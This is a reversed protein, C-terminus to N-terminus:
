YQGARDRSLAGGSLGTQGGFTAEESKIIKQRRKRAEPAGSIGFVETEAVEQTYPDQQYIASLQRGRELGGAVTQFGAQAKEGTVGFAGLQEARERKIGLGSQAAGAGIEAATVKRKIDNLANEPDLIYALADGNSIVGSYFDSLLRMVEPPANFLREQATQVRDELEISSVDSAILNEFAPQVGLKDKSYYKAPLGYRRMINQYQDELSLYEAENLATLGKSIRKANAAFRKQYAESNRLRLTFESSSVSPDTILGRLPEVLSGLGYQSFEQFLLDFASQRNGRNGSLYDQYERYSKEDYFVTGDTSTWTKQPPNVPGTPQTGAPDTPQTGAPGTPQTGAPGTPQTGIPETPESTVPVFPQGSQEAREQFGVDQLGDFPTTKSTTKPTDEPSQEYPTREEIPFDAQLAEWQARTFRKAM